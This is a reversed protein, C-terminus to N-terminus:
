STYLGYKGLDDFPVVFTGEAGTIQARRGSLRATMRWSGVNHGGISRTVMPAARRDTVTQICGYHQVGGPHASKGRTMDLTTNVKLPGQYVKATEREELARIRTAESCKALAHSVAPVDRKVPPKGEDYQLRGTGDEVWCKYFAEGREHLYDRHQGSKGYAGTAFFWLVVPFQRKRLEHREKFAGYGEPTRQYEICAIAAGDADHVVVDPRFQQPPTGPLFVTMEANVTAGTWQKRAWRGIVEVVAAHHALDARRCLRCAEDSKIFGRSHAFHPIRLMKGSEIHASRFHVTLDGVTLAQQMARSEVM